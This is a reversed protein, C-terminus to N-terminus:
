LSIRSHLVIDLYKCQLVVSPPFTHICTHTVPDGHQVASVIFFSLFFSDMKMYSFVVM